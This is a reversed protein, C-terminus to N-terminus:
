DRPTGRPTPTAKAEAPTRPPANPTPRKVANKPNRRSEAIPRVEIPKEAPKAKSFQELALRILEQHNPKIRTTVAGREFASMVQPAEGIAIVPSTNGMRELTAIGKISISDDALVVVGIEGAERLQREIDQVATNPGVAIARMSTQPDKGIAALFAKASPTMAGGTELGHLVAITKGNAIVVAEAAAAEGYMEPTTLLVPVGAPVGDANETLLVVPRAVALANTLYQAADAGKPSDVIFKMAPFTKGIHTSQAELTSEKLPAVNLPLTTLRMHASQVNGVFARFDGQTRRNSILAVGSDAVTGHQNYTTESGPAKMPASRGNYATEPRPANYRTENMPNQALATAALLMSAAVIAHNKFRM